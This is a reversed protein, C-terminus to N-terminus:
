MKAILDSSKKKFRFKLKIKKKVILSYLCRKLFTNIMQGGETFQRKM